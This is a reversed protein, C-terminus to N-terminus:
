GTSMQAVRRPVSAHKTLMAKPAARTADTQTVTTATAMTSTNDHPIASYAHCVLDREPLTSLESAMTGMNMGTTIPTYAM